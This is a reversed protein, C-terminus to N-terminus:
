RRGKTLTSRFATLWDLEAEALTLQRRLMAISIARGTTERRSGSRGASRELETNVADLFDRIGRERADVARRAEAPTLLDAFGLAIGAETEYPTLAGFREALGVRSRERGAKTISYVRRDPGRTGEQAKGAVSGNRELRKLVQYVSAKSVDTWFGMSRARFRELLDYGYLPGDSLLGLVVVDLKPVSAGM